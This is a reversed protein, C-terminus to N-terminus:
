YERVLIARIVPQLYWPMDGGLGSNVGGPTAHIFTIGAVSVCRRHPAMCYIRLWLMGGANEPKQALAHMACDNYFGAAADANM